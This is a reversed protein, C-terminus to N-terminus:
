HLEPDTPPLMVDEAEFTSRIADVAATNLSVRKEELEIRSFHWHQHQTSDEYVSRHAPSSLPQSSM